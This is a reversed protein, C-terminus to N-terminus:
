VQSKTAMYINDCRESLGGKTRSIRLVPNTQDTMSPKQIFSAEEGSLLRDAKMVCWTQEVSRRSTTVPKANWRITTFAERPNRLNMEAIQARQELNNIGNRAKTPFTPSRHIWEVTQWVGSRGCSRKESSSKLVEDDSRCPSRNSLHIYWVVIRDKREGTKRTGTCLTKSQLCMSCQFSDVSQLPSEGQPRCHRAFASPSETEGPSM